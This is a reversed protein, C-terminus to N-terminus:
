RSTSACVTAPVIEIVEPVEVIQALVVAGVKVKVPLVPVINFQDDEEVKDPVYETTGPVIVGVTFM